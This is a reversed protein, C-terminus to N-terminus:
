YINSVLYFESEHIGKPSVFIGSGIICGVIINIGNFLTLHRELGVKGEMDPEEKPWSKEPLSYEQPKAEEKENEEGMAKGADKADGVDNANGEEANEADYKANEEEQANREDKAKKGVANEM